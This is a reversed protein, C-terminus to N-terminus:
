AAAEPKMSSSLWRDLECRAVLVRHTDPVTRLVGAAILRRITPQSLGTLEAVEPVSNALKEAATM